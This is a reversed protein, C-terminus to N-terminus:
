QNLQDRLVPMGQSRRISGVVPTRGAVAPGPNDPVDLMDSAQSVDPGDGGRFREGVGSLASRIRKGPEVDGLLNNQSYNHM